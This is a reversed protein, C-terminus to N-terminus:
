SSLSNPDRLSGISHGTGGGAERFAAIRRVSKVRWRRNRDRALNMDATNKTAIDRNHVSSSM